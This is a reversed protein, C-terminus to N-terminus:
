FGKWYDVFGDKWIMYETQFELNIKNVISAFDRGSEKLLVWCKGAPCYISSKYGWQNMLIGMSINTHFSCHVPIRLYFWDDDSPVNEAIVTHVIMSGDGSVLRNIQDLDSRSTIHEFFACCIVSNYLRLDSADVYINKSSNQMYPDYVPVSIDFYKSLISSLTGYGGAYDVMNGCDIIGAKSLVKIMFAQEYYPPPNGKRNGTKKARESFSHYQYNLNEWEQHDLEYHTKSMTFGCSVCRFYKVEGIDNMFTCFPEERYVKSFYYAASDGCILCQM